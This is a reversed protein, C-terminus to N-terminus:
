ATVSGRSWVSVLLYSSFYFLYMVQVVDPLASEMVFSFVVMVHCAIVSQLDNLIFIFLIFKALTSGIFM